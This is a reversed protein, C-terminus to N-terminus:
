WKASSGCPTKPRAAGALAALFRRGVADDRIVYSELAVAQRAGAILEIMADFKADGDAFLTVRNGPSVDAAGIRWLARAFSPGAEAPGGPGGTEGL